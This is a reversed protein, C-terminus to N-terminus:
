NTSVPNPWISSIRIWRTKEIELANHRDKWSDLLARRKMGSRKPTTCNGGCSM